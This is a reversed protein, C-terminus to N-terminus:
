VHGDRINEIECKVQITGLTAYQIGTLFCRLIKLLEKCDGCMKIKIVVAVMDQLWVHALCGQQTIIMLEM